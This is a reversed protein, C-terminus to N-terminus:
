INKNYATDTFTDLLDSKHLERGYIRLIHSIDAFIECFLTFRENAIIYEIADVTDARRWQLVRRSDILEAELRSHMNQLYLQLMEIEKRTM